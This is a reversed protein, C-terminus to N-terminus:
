RYRLAYRPTNTVDEVAGINPTNYFQKGYYDKGGLYAGVRKVQSARPRYENDLDPNVTLSAADLAQTGAGFGYFVNNSERNWTGSDYRIAKSATSAAIFINNKCYNSDSPFTTPNGHIGALGCNIFTNNFINSVRGSTQNGYFVGMHCNKIVNGYCTINTAEYIIGIAAGATFDATGALNELYNGYAVCGDAGHDFLLGCGDYIISSINKASNHRIIYSGYMINAFGTTGELGDAVNNEIVNQGFDATDTQIFGGVVIGGGLEGVRRQNTIKNGCIKVGKNRGTEPVYAKIAAGGCNTFTNRSVELDYIHVNSPTETTGLANPTAHLIIVGHTASCGNFTNNTIKINEHYTNLPSQPWWGIAAAGGGGVGGNFTNGDIITNIWGWTNIPLFEICPVASGYFTCNRIVLGTMPAGSPVICRNQSTITLAEVTISSRNINFYINNGRFSLSGSESSHDGKITVGTVNGLAIVSTYTHTGCIYLTDGTNVGSTGWVIESWGGWASAYSQGNRTGSHSIDPRVHWTAM